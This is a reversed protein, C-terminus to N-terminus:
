NYILDFRLYLSSYSLSFRCCLILWLLLLAKCNQLDEDVFDLMDAYESELPVRFKVITMTPRVQYNNSETSKFWWCTAIYSHLCLAQYITEKAVFAGYFLVMVFAGYCFYDRLCNM